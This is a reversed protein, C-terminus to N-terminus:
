KKQFNRSTVANQAEAQSEQAKPRNLNLHGGGDEPDSDVYVFDFGDSSDMLLKDLLQLFKELDLIFVGTICQKAGALANEEGRLDINKIANYLRM